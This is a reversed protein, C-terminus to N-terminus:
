INYLRKLYFQRGNICHQESAQMAAQTDGAIIAQLIRRHEEVSSQRIDKDMRVFNSMRYIHGYITELDNALRRNRAGQYIIRHFKMDNEMFLDIDDEAVSRELSAICDSLEQVLALNSKEIFLKVALCELGLRLEYLELLDDLRIQAVSLGVGPAVELLGEATLRRIAERVPTRSVHLENSLGEETLPTGPQYECKFIRDHIYQYVFEQKSVKAM